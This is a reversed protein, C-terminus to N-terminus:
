AVPATTTKGRRARRPTPATVPTTGTLTQAQERLRAAESLLSQAQRELDGAQTELNKGLTHDDLVQPTANQYQTALHESKKPDRMGAQADIEALRRIATEGQSMEKLIRNIEDLRVQSRADTTPTLIIASTAVKKIWGERHLTTLINRGDPLLNRYLIDAFEKEDQGQPSELVRMVADHYLKPLNDSYVVLCMHEEDPVTRYLIVVKRDGHRGIHKTM